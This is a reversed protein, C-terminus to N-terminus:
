RILHPPDSFFYIFRNLSHPNLVKNVFAAGPDHMFFFFVDTLSAGGATICSLLWVM